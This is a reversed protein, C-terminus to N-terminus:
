RAKLSDLAREVSLAGLAEALRKSASSPLPAWVRRPVDPFPPEPFGLSVAHLIYGGGFPSGGYKSDGSLPMGRLAAQARIQHTLGTHLEVLVLSKGQASLLPRMSARAEDGSEDAVSRMAAEDRALRDRWEASGAVEGDVLALYLKELARRRLLESFARAGAASRPFVILGTTNRDLRHLPGPNFSLSAASRSALARRIRGELAEDGQAVLGRPKNIFLLDSTALILMDAISALGEGPDRPRDAILPDRLGLAAHIFIRDGAAMRRDPSAKAGNVRILGRRLSSYISSLSRDGLASRLIRDLRRGADDQGAILEIGEDKPAM